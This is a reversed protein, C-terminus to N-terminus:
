IKDVNGMIEKVTKLTGGASAGADVGEAVGDADSTTADKKKMGLISKYGEYAGKAAVTWGPQRFDLETKDLKAQADVLSQSSVKAPSESKFGSFGKMKYGM